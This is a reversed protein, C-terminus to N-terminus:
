KAMKKIKMNPLKGEKMLQKIFNTIRIEDEIRMFPISNLLHTLSGGGRSFERVIDQKENESGQYSSRAQEFSSPEIIKLHSEWHASVTAKTLYIDLGEDYANKKEPDSLISYAQHITSFEDNAEKKRDTNVRDPHHILALQYYKKKVTFGIRKLYFIQFNLYLNLFVMRSKLM